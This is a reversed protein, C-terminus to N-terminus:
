NGDRSFFIVTPSVGIRRVEMDVLGSKDLSTLQIGGAKELYLFCTPEQDSGEFAFAVVGQYTGALTRSLWYPFDVTGSGAAGRSVLGPVLRDFGEWRFKMGEDLRITGYAGSRLTDGGSRFDDFLARRKAKEAEILIAVNDSVQVYVANTMQDKYRYSLTIRDEAQVVIRVETGTFIYTSGAKEVKQYRFSITDKPMVLKLLNRQPDPFLGIDERFRALDIRNRDIMNVFYDPRWANGLLRALVPDQSLLRAAELSPDGPTSFVKLYYGFCFGPTGDETVLEYWYDEYSGAKDKQDSRSVVKVLEGYRLKYVIRAESNPKERMPLPPADEKRSFAYTTMYAGYAAAFRGAEDRKPFLRVKGAPIERPKSEGSAHVLVVAAGQSEGTVSVLAGTAFPGSLDGSLLVGYGLPPKACSVPLLLFVALVVPPLWPSIRASLRAVPYKIRTM